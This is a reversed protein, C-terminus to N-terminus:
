RVTNKAVLLTKNHQLITTLDTARSLLLVALEPDEDSKVANCKVDLLNDLVEEIKHTDYGNLAGYVLLKTQANAASCIKRELLM